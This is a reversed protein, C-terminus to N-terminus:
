TATTRTRVALDRMLVSEFRDDGAIRELIGELNRARDSDVGSVRAHAVLVLPKERVAADDLLANWGVRWQTTDAAPDRVSFWWWDVASWTFPLCVVGTEALRFGDEDVSSEYSLGFEALLGSTRSTGYGGPARFGAVQAGYTDLAAQGAAIIARERAEDLAAWPEHVWGHLGIEHGQDLLGTIRDGHHLANWGEVFFTAKLRYRALMKEIRTLGVRLGVEDSDAQLHSGRGIDAANGMNDFTIAVPIPPM